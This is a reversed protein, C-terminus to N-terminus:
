KVNHFKEGLLFHDTIGLVSVKLRVQALWIKLPNRLGRYPRPTPCWAVYRKAATIRREIITLICSLNPCLHNLREVNKCNLALIQMTYRGNYFSSNGGCFCIYSLTGEGTQISPHQVGRSNPMFFPKCMLNFTETRCVWEFNLM